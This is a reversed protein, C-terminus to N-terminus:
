RTGIGLGVLRLVGMLMMIPISIVLLFVMATTVYGTIPRVPTIAKYIFSSEIAKQTMDEMAPPYYTRTETKDIQNMQVQISVVFGNVMDVTAVAVVVLVLMGIFRGM